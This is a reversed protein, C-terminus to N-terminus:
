DLSGALLGAVLFFMLQGQQITWLYHDFFGIFLFGIFIALLTISLATLKSKWASLLIAGIFLLFLILGAMGTEAAILLYINHVPQHQHPKLPEKTYNDMELVFNKYGVGLIPKAKIMEIAVEQYLLRDSIARQNTEDSMNIESSVSTPVGRELLQPYFLIGVVAVSAIVVIALKKLVRKKDIDEPDIHEIIGSKGAEIGLADRSVQFVALLRSIISRVARQKMKSIWLKLKDSLSDWNKRERQDFIGVGGEGMSQYLPFNGMFRMLIFWVVVSILFGALAVRSFSIFITTIQIFLALLIIGRKWTGHSVYYLYLSIIVAFAMFAGLVNPHPFTGYPRVLISTGHSVDFIKDFVWRQGGIIEFKAIGPIFSRIFEEGLLRLGISQQIFYQWIGIV